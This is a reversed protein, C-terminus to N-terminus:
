GRIAAQIRSVPTVGTFREVEEGNKYVVITPLGRVEAWKTVNKSKDTDVKFAKYEGNAEADLQDMRPFMARCPGCWTAFYDVVVPVDSNMVEQHFEDETITKCAM